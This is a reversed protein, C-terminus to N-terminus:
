LRIGGGAQLVQGTVWAADDSAFFAVPGAIDEPQGIRGLPTRSVMYNVGEETAGGTAKFLDTDVAGPAVANVTVGQPGLETALTRTVAEVAAKTATYVSGGALAGDTVVSSLNIIRGGRSGNVNFYKAAEQSAFILGTVNLDFQQSVHEADIQELPAFLTSGANNVLIDLRGYAELAVEFLQAIQAKDSLDARVAVAQGGAETISKVVEQAAAENKAYNVVVAAGDAALKRAIGAGIGRSAGTVVAVKGTLKSM